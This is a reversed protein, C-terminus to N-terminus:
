IGFKREGSTLKWTFRNLPLTIGFDCFVRWKMEIFNSKFLNWNLISKINLTTLWDTQKFCSNWVTIHHCLSVLVLYELEQSHFSNGVSFFCTFITTQQDLLTSISMRCFILLKMKIKLCIGFWFYNTIWLGTKQWRSFTFLWYQVAQWECLLTQIYFMSIWTCIIRVVNSQVFVYLMRNTLSTM